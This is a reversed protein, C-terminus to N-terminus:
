ELNEKVKRFFPRNEVNELNPIFWIAISNARILHNSPMRYFILLNMVAKFSLCPRQLVKFKPTNYIKQGFSIHANTLFDVITRESFMDLYFASRGIQLTAAGM